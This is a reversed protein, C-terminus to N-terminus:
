NQNILDLLEPLLPVSVWEYLCSLIHYDICSVIGQLDELALRLGKISVFLNKPIHERGCSNWSHSDLLSPLTEM